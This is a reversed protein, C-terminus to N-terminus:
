FCVGLSKDVSDIANANHAFADRELKFFCKRFIKARVFIGAAVILDSWTLHKNHGRVAEGIGLIDDVKWGFVM